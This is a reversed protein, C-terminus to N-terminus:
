MEVKLPDLLVLAASYVEDVSIQKMCNDDGRLCGPHFCARCDLEKYIVQSRKSRPGWVLPDTPGFLGVVPCEVAAAIHMLGTDNGIFLKAHKMLAALELVSTQGVISIFSKNALEQIKEAVIEDQAHGALVVAIGKEALRDSLMAFREAPWTKFWYRATPHIMVWPQRALGLESLKAEAWSEYTDPVYVKPEHNLVNIGLLKLAQAHHEVMHVRANEPEVCDSYLLGRWRKEEDFGIRVSAGSIWTLFASRDGDTLDIVCDFQRARLEYCLQIQERLSERPVVLIEDIYPNHTLVEQTGPNVLCVLNVDPYQQRLGQLVPTTLVVDGIYRLKIVLIRNM